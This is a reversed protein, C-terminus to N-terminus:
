RTSPATGLNKIVKAGAVVVRNTGDKPMLQVQPPNVAEVSFEQKNYWVTDGVNIVELNQDLASGAYPSGAESLSKILKQTDNM